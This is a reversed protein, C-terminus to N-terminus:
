PPSKDNTPLVLFLFTPRDTTLEYVKVEMRTKFRDVGSGLGGTVEFEADPRFNGITDM